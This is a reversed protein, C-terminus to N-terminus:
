DGPAPNGATFIDNIKKLLKRRNIPKSVYDDCGAQMIKEYDDAMAYATQAIIPIDRIAKIRRTAEYGSMGPLKIDMLVLDIDIGSEVLSLASKGDSAHMLQVGTSKLAERLYIVSMADDEVILIKKSSWDPTTLLGNEHMADLEYDSLIMSEPVTFYFSTGKGQESTFWVKGGMMEVLVKVITLGLGLGGYLKAIEHDIKYFEQFLNDAHEPHIGVGTDKVFFMIDKKKSRSRNSRAEQLSCGFEISGSDTFKMANGLLNTLVLMLKDRDAYIRSAGNINLNIKLELKDRQKFIEDKKYTDYLDTMFAALSFETKNLELQGSRIISYELADDVIKVLSKGCSRIIDIFKDRQAQDLDPDRMLEAFGMIGNLPTRIEIGISKLYSNLIAPGAAENTKGIGELLKLKKKLERNAQHEKDYKAQWESTRKELEEEFSHNLDKLEQMVNLKELKERVFQILQQLISSLGLFIDKDSESGTFVFLGFPLYISQIPFMAMFAPVAFDEKFQIRSFDKDKHSLIVPGKKLNGAISRDIEFGPTGPKKELRLDYVELPTVTLEEVECFVSFPLDLIVSTRELFHLVLDEVNDAQQISEPVLVMLLKEQLHHRADAQQKELLKIRSRLENIVQNRSTTVM